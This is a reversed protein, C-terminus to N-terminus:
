RGERWRGGWFVQSIAIYFMVLFFFWIYLGGASQKGISVFVGDCGKSWIYM